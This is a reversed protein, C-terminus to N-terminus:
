HFIGIVGAPISGAILKNIVTKFNLVTAVYLSSVFIHKVTFKRFEEENTLLFMQEYFYCIKYILPFFSAYTLIRIHATALLM